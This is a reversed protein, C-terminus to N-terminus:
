SIKSDSNTTNPKYPKLHEELLNDFYLNNNKPVKLIKKDKDSLLEEFRQIVVEDTLASKSLICYKAVPEDIPSISNSTGILKIISKHLPSHFILHIQEIHKIGTYYIYLNRETIYLIGKYQYVGDNVLVTLKGFKSKITLKSSVIKNVGTSSYSYLFYNGIYGYYKKTTILNIILKKLYDFVLIIITLILGGIVETSYTNIFLNIKGLLDIEM